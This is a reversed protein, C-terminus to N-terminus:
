KIQPLDMDKDSMSKHKKCLPCDGNIHALYDDRYREMTTKIFFIPSMALACNASDLMVQGVTLM